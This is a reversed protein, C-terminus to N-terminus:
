NKAKNRFLLKIPTGSFDFVKRIEKELFTEYQKSVIENDNVFLVIEPPKINAQTVYYIKLQKGKKSPPSTNLVIDEITKNLKGTSIRLQYNKYIENVLGWLRSSDKEQGQVNWPIGRTTFLIKSYNIFHLSSLVYEEFRKMMGSDKKEILDWKNMLIISPKHRKKILSAIKQDQDSVDSNADIVLCVVDAREIAAISRSTSYREVNSSVKSKRRLGATDILKYDQGDVVLSTDICDRTTGPIPTVISREEGVLSNLISSKGVNPKGVIAINIPENEKVNEHIASAAIKDLIDALGSSGSLASIPYPEGLGLSYFDYVFASQKETDVKNVALFINKKNKIKRLQSAITEDQSTIGSKGDVLFLIFEAEDIASFVQKKVQKTIESDTGNLEDTLGGTDILTIGKGNWDINAYLRDRTVGPVDDVISKREKVLRNFLTSKGVNPRGIVAVKIYENKM